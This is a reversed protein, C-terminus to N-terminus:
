FSISQTCPTSMYTTIYVNDIFYNASIFQQHLPTTRYSLLPTYPDDSKKLLNKVTQVSREAQGNSQPFKQAARSTNFGTPPQLVLLSEPLISRAM